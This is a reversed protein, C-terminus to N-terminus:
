QLFSAIKQYIQKKESVDIWDVNMKNFWTYQRKAYRRTDRALLSETEEIPRKDVLHEVMHRYGIAQMSKLERGYGHSLLRQVEERLGNQLMITTRRNIRNYLLDRDCTLGIKLINKFQNKKKTKAQKELHETWTKGTSYYIELARILRHTDNAHIKDASGPDFKRLEEHLNSSGEQELRQHLKQRLEKDNAEGDFLGELLAKLYLGTGGTLLPIRDRSYIGRLIEFTDNVFCNADYHEDPNVIDILHHPVRQQEEISVKATGIDMYRYIQMSDLSIIECDFKEAIGLSLNTKGIATPGVVVIIPKNQFVDFEIM